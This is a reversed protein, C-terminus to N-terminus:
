ASNPIVPKKSCACRLAHFIVQVYGGGHKLLGFKSRGMQPSRDVWVVPVEVIHYGFLIPLLGTEANMAFGESEWPMSRFIKARYLKFNNTIDNQKIRFIIKVVWHFSRNMLLKLFPYGVVKGGKVFRSGIVGDCRQQDFATILARVQGINEVFDSDMSLVCEAKSSIRDFGAKLARGVGCPPTRKILIVKTNRKSWAEVIETTGDRSADDVVIIELIEQDYNALLGELMRGIAQEENHAILIVSLAKM